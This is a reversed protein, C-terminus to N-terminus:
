VVRFFPNNRELLVFGFSNNPDTIHFFPYFQARTDQRHAKPQAKKSLLATEFM